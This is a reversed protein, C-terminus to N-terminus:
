LQTIARRMWTHGIKVFNIAYSLCGSIQIFTIKNKKKFKRSSNDTKISLRLAPWVLLVRCLEGRHVKVRQYLISGM